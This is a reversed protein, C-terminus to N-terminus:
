ENNLRLEFIWNMEWSFRKERRLIWTFSSSEVMEKIAEVECDESLVMIVLSGTHVFKPLQLFFKKFYGLDSGAYWSMQEAGIPNGRYYPPNVVVYDFRMEPIKDFLDSEVTNICVNNAKANEICCSIALPNVDTATVLAGQKAAWISIIGSGCGPELLTKGNLPLSNLEDLLFRTSFFFGPHFVGKYIVLSVGKYRYSRDKSLYKQLLPRYTHNLIKKILGM